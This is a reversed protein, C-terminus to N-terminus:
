LPLDIFREMSFNLLAVYKSKADKRDLHYSNWKEVEWEM